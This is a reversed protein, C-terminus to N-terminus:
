IRGVQVHLCWSPNHLLLWPHHWVESCLVDWEEKRLVVVNGFCSNSLAVRIRNSNGSVLVGRFCVMDGRVCVWILKCCLGYQAGDRCPPFRMLRRCPRMEAAGWIHVWTTCWPSLAESLHFLWSPVPLTTYPLWENQQPILPHCSSCDESLSPHRLAAQSRVAFHPM